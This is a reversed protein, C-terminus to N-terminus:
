ATYILFSFCVSTSFATISVLSLFLQQCQKLSVLIISCSDTFHLLMERGQEKQGTFHLSNLILTKKERGERERKKATHCVLFARHLARPSAPPM